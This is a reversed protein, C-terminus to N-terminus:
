SIQSGHGAFVPEWQDLRHADELAAPYKSKLRDPLHARVKETQSESSAEASTIKNDSSLRRQRYQSQIRYTRDISIIAQKVARFWEECEQQDYSGIHLFELESPPPWSLPDVAGEEHSKVPPPWRIVFSWVEGYGDDENEKASWMGEVAVRGLFVSQRPQHHAATTFVKLMPGELTVYRELWQTFYASSQKLLYGQKRFLSLGLSTEKGGGASGTTSGTPGIEPSSSLMAEEAMRKADMPTTAGTTGNSVGVSQSARTPMTIPSSSAAYIHTPVSM